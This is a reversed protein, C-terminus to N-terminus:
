TDSNGFIKNTRDLNFLCLVCLQSRMVVVILGFCFSFPILLHIIKDPCFHKLLAM